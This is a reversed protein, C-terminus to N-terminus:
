RNPFNLFSNKADASAQAKYAALSWYNVTVQVGYQVTTTAISPTILYLTWPTQARVLKGKYGIDASTSPNVAANGVANSLFNESRSWLIGGGGSTLSFSGQQSGEVIFAGAVDGIGVGGVFSIGASYEVHIWDIVVDTQFIQTAARVGVNSAAPNGLVTTFPAGFCVHLLPQITESM